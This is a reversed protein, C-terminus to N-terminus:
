MQDNSDDEMNEPHDGAGSGGYSSSYFPFFVNAPQFLYYPWISYYSALVVTPLYVLKLYYKLFYRSPHTNNVAGSKWPPPPACTHLELDGLEVLGLLLSNM